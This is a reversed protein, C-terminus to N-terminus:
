LSYETKKNNGSYGKYKGGRVGVGFFLEQVDKSEAESSVKVKLNEM